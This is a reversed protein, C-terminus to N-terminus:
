RSTALAAVAAEREFPEIGYFLPLNVVRECFARSVRVDGAIAAARAPAQQDITEPYTRAVGIGKEALAKALSEGDRTASTVVCLYGNDSVGPPPAFVRVGGLDALRERYDRAAEARAAVIADARECVRLLYAAQLGGMRSSWGVREHRYHAVRGHNCLSRVIAEHERSRMLVAGGDMAGGIVKAPYFSVAAITAGALVPADGVRVGYAQAADELLAIEREACFARFESIRASAWGFLHVLIAARFRHTDHARRFADFSMQLDDPDVDLLVARAGLQAVAEYTAWFTLNPLAVDTGPGVGLAQLAVVLAHTGSSCAVAHPMGLQAAVLSELRAVRPGGVLECEDLVDAFDARADRAVLRVLRSLDIFPVRM